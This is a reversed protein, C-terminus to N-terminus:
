PEGRDPMCEVGVQTEIVRLKLRSGIWGLAEAGLEDAQDHSLVVGDVMMARAVDDVRRARITAIQAETARPNHWEHGAKVEADHEAQAEKTQPPLHERGVSLIAQEEDLATSGCSEAAERAQETEDARVLGRGGRHDLIRVVLADVTWSYLEKEVDEDADDISQGSLTEGIKAAERRWFELTERAATYCDEGEDIVSADPLCLEALAGAAQGVTSHRYTGIKYDM